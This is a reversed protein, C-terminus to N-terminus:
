QYNINSWRTDLSVLDDLDTVTLITEQHGDRVFDKPDTTALETHGDRNNALDHADICVGRDEEYISDLASDLSPYEQTREWIRLRDDLESKRTIANEEIKRSLERLQKQLEDVLIFKPAVNQYYDYLFAYAPNKSDLLGDRIHAIDLSDIQGVYKSRQLDSVHALIADSYREILHPEKRKYANEIDDSIFIIL